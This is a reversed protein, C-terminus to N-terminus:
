LQDGYLRIEKLKCWDPIERNPDFKDIYDRLYETPYVKCLLGDYNMPCEYCADWDKKLSVILSM